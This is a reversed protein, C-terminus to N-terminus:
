VSSQATSGTISTEDPQVSNEQASESQSALKRNRRIRAPTPSIGRYKADLGDETLAVVRKIKSNDQKVVTTATQDVSTNQEAAFTNAEPSTPATISAELSPSIEAMGSISDKPLVAVADTPIIGNPLADIASSTSSSVSLESVNAVAAKRSRLGSVLFVIGLLSAILVLGTMWSRRKRAASQSLIQTPTEPQGEASEADYEDDYQRISGYSSSMKILSRNQKISYYVV